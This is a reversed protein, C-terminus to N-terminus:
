LALTGLGWVWAVLIAYLEGSRILGDAFEIDNLASGLLPLQGFAFACALVGSAALALYPGDSTKLALLAGDAAAVRYLGAREGLAPATLDAAAEERDGVMRAVESMSRRGDATGSAAGEEDPGSGWRKSARM